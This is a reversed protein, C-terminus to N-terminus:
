SSESTGTEKVLRIIDAMTPRVFYVCVTRKGRKCLTMKRVCIFSKVTSNM